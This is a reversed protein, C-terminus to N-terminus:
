RASEQLLELDAAFCEPLRAAPSAEAAARRVAEAAWPRLYRTLLEAVLVRDDNEVAAAVVECAVSLHDPALTAGRWGLRLHHLARLWDERAQAGDMPALPSWVRAWAALVCPAALHAAGMTLWGRDM